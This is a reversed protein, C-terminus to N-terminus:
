ASSALIRRRREHQLIFVGCAAIIGAGLLSWYDPVDGFALYGILIAWLLETYVFPAIAPVAAREYAHIMCLHALGALVGTGVFLAWGVLDPALWDFPVVVCSALTGIVGVYALSTMPPDLHGVMRIILQNSAYCFALLLPLFTAWHVTGFGPRVIVLMGLFAFGTAVWSQWSVREGLLPASFATIMIPSLFTIAVLEAITIYRLAVVFLVAGVLNILSRVVQLGHNQSRLITPLQRPILLVVLAMHFAYRAWVVQVTSYNEVRLERATAAMLVMFLMSLTLLVIGRLRADDPRVANNKM